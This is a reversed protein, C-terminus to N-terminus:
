RLEAVRAEYLEVTASDCQRPEQPHNARAFREVPDSGGQPRPKIACNDHIRHRSVLLTSAWVLVHKGSLARLAPEPRVRPIIMQAFTSQNLLKGGRLARSFALLDDATVWAGGFPAEWELSTKSYRGWGIFSDAATSRENM